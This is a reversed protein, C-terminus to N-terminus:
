PLRELMQMYLATEEKAWEHYREAVDEAKEVNYQKDLYIIFLNEFSHEVQLKAHLEPKAVVSEYYVAADDFQELRYYSEAMRYLILPETSLTGETDAQQAKVYKEIAEAYNQQEFDNNADNVLQQLDEPAIATIQGTEEDGEDFYKLPIEVEKKGIKSIGIAILVVVILGLVLMAPKEFAMQVAKKNRPKKVRLKM